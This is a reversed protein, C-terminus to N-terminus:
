CPCTHALTQMIHLVPVLNWLPLEGGSAPGCRLLTVMCSSQFSKNLSQLAIFPYTLEERCGARVIWCHFSVGDGLSMHPLTFYIFPTSIYMKTPAIIPVRRKFTMNSNLQWQSLGTHTFSQSTLPLSVVGEWICSPKPTSCNCPAGWVLFTSLEVEGDLLRRSVKGPM